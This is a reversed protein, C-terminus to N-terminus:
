QEGGKKNEFKELAKKIRCDVVDNCRDKAQCDHCVQECACRAASRMKELSEENVRERSDWLCFMAVILNEFRSNFDLIADMWPDIDEPKQPFDDKSIM